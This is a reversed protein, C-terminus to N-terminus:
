RACATLRMAHFMAPIIRRGGNGAALVKLVAGRNLTGFKPILVFRASYAILVDKEKWSDCGPSVVKKWRGKKKNRGKKKAFFFFLFFVLSSFDNHLVSTRFLVLSRRTIM